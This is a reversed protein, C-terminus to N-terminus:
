ARQAETEALLADFSLRADALENFQIYTADFRALGADSHLKPDITINGNFSELLHKIDAVSRSNLPFNPRYCDNDPNNDGDDIAVALGLAMLRALCQDTLSRPVCLMDAMAQSDPGPQNARFRRGILILCGFCLTQKTRASLSEWTSYAALSRANQLAYTFQGGILLFLWSLYMGFMLVLIISLSGYFKNFNAVNGAYLAGLKQNTVLIVAVLLGGGLAPWWRVKANPMFKNFLAVLLTMLGISILTPGAGSLFRVLGPLERLWEPLEDVQKAFSAGSLMTLSAAGLVCSVAMFLFYNIFRDKWPRGKSVNWITNFANEVRSLMMVALFVLIILGGASAGGSAAQKLLNDVMSDLDLGAPAAPANAVGATAASAGAAPSAGVNAAGEAPDAAPASATHLGTQPALGQLASSIAAKLKDHGNEQKSLIFGGLTLALVLMPGISMLTYYTLAASQVPIKNYVVGKVTTAGVRLLAKLRGSASTDNMAESTWIGERWSLLGAILSKKANPPPTTAASDSM